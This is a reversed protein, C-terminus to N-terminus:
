AERRNDDLPENKGRKWAKVANQKSTYLRGERGCDQCKMFGDYRKSISSYLKVFESHGGCYPCNM